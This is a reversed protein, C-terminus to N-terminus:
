DAVELKVVGEKSHITLAGQSDNLGGRSPRVFMLPVKATNLIRRPSAASAAIQFWVDSPLMVAVDGISSAVISGSTEPCLQIALEVSLDADLRVDAWVGSWVIPGNRVTARTTGVNDILAVLGHASEVSVSANMGTIEVASYEARLNVFHSKPLQIHWYTPLYNTESDIESVNTIDAPTEYPKTSLHPVGDQGDV